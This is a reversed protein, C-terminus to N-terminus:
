IRFDNIRDFRLTLVVDNQGQNSFLYLMRRDSDLILVFFALSYFALVKDIQM